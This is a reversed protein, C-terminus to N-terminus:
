QATVVLHLAIKSALVSPFWSSGHASPTLGWAHACSQHSWLLAMNAHLARNARLVSQRRKRSSSSEWSSIMCWGGIFWHPGDSRFHYPHLCLTAFAKLTGWELKLALLSICCLPNKSGCDCADFFISEALYMTNDRKCRCPLIPALTIRWIERPLTAQSNRDRTCQFQAFVTDTWLPQRPSALVPFSGGKGNM